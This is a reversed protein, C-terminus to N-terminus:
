LVFYPSHKGHKLSSGNKIEEAREPLTDFLAVVEVRDDRKFAPAHAWRTIGGCGILGIRLKKM